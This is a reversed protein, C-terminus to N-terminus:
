DGSLRDVYAVVAREADSEAAAGPALQRYLEIAAVLSRKLSAADLSPHTARLRAAFDPSQTEIRRVGRQARGSRMADLPGLVQERIFALMAVAEFLEGRRVKAAAYHTWIWFREDFWNADRNPWEVAASAVRTEITPDRRWLIAPREVMRDLADATVFKLDVHLPEDAYLCILLRPEGVHEGTFAALLDGLRAALARRAAMADAYYDDEIVIVLDLDSCADFGGHVLSGGGLVAVVGTETALVRLADLLFQQHATPLANLM